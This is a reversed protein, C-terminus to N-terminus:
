IFQFFAIYVNVLEFMYVILLFGRLGEGFNPLSVLFSMGMIISETERLWDTTVSM